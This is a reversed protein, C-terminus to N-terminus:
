GGAKQKHRALLRRTERASNQKLKCEWIEVVRWGLQRLLRRKRRDREVNLEFKRKWFARHTKPLTPRCYPCRHWFCGYVFAVTSSDPFVFDPTGPLRNDNRLFGSGGQRALEEALLREPL